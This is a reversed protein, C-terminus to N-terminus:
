YKILDQMRKICIPLLYNDCLDIFNEFPKSNNKRIEDIYYNKYVLYASLMWDGFFDEVMDFDYTQNKIGIAIIEFINLYQSLDFLSYSSQSDIDETIEKETLEIFDYKHVFKTYFVSINSITSNNKRNKTQLIKLLAGTRRRIQIYDNNLKFMIKITNQESKRKTIIKNQKLYAKYIGYLIMCIIYSIIIFFLMITINNIIFNSSINFVEITNKGFFILISSFLFTISLILSYSIFSYITNIILLIAEILHLTHIGHEINKELSILIIFFIGTIFHIVKHWKIDKTINSWINNQTHVKSNHEKAQKKSNNKKMSDINSAKYKQRRKKM